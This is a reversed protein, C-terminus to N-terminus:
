CYLICVFKYLNVFQHRVSSPGLEFENIKARATLSGARLCSPGSDFSSNGILGSTLRLGRTKKVARIMLLQLHTIHYEYMM